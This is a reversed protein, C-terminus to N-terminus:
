GIADSVAQTFSELEGATLQGSAFNGFGPDIGATYHGTVDVRFGLAGLCAAPLAAGCTRHDVVSIWPRSSVDATDGATAPLQTQSTEGPVYCGTPPVM